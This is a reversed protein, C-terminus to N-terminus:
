RKAVLKIIFTMPHIPRSVPRKVESGSAEPVEALRTPSTRDGSGTTRLNLRSSVTRPVPPLPRLCVVMVTVNDGPTGAHLTRRQRVLAQELLWDAVQLLPPHSPPAPLPPICQRVRVAPETCGGLCARRRVWGGWGDVWLSCMVCVVCGGGHQGGGGVWVCVGCARVQQPDEDLRRLARRTDSLVSSEPAYYDWLGDSATIVFESMEDLAVM